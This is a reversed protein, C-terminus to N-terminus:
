CFILFYCMNVYIIMIIEFLFYNVYILRVLAVYILM